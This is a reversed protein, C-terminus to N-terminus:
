GMVKFTNQRQMPYIEKLNHQLWDRSIGRSDYFVLNMKPIYKNSQIETYM